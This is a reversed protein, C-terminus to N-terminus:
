GYTFYDDIRKFESDRIEFFPINVNPITSLECEEKSIDLLKFLIKMERYPNWLDGERIPRDRTKRDAMVLTYM